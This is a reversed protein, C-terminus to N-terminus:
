NTGPAECSFPDRGEDLQVKAKDREMRAQLLTTAPYRGIALLKQKDGFRYAFRWLKTGTPYVWLKCAGWTRFSPSNPSSKTKRCELATLPM